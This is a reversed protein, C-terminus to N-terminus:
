LYEILYPSAMLRSLSAERRVPSLPSSIDVLGSFESWHSEQSFGRQPSSLTTLNTQGAELFPPLFIFSQNSLVGTPVLGIEDVHEEVQEEASQTFLGNYLPSSLLNYNISIERVPSPSSFTNQQSMGSPSSPITHLSDDGDFYGLPYIFSDQSNGLQQSIPAGFNSQATDLSANPDLCDAGSVVVIQSVPETRLSGDAVTAPEPFFAKQAKRAGSCLTPNKRKKTEVLAHQPSIRAVTNPSVEFYNALTNSKKLNNYTSKLQEITRRKTDSKFYTGAIMGWSMKHEKVANVLVFLETQSLPTRDIAPDLHVTYRTYCQKKTRGAIAIDKWNKSSSNRQMILEADEEATWPKMAYLSFTFSSTILLILVLIKIM